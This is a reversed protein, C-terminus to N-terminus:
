RRQWRASELWFLDSDIAAIVYEREFQQQQDLNATFGAARSRESHLRAIEREIAAKSFDPLKGDFEHRGNVVAIDPRFAFYANLYGNVYKDWDASRAPRPATGCGAFMGVMLFGAGLRMVAAGGANRLPKRLGNSVSVFRRALASLMIVERKGSQLVSM